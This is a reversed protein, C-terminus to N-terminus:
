LFYLQEHCTCHVCNYNLPSSACSCPRPPPPLNGCCCCGTLTQKLKTCTLILLAISTSSYPCRAAASSFKNPEYAPVAAYRLRSSVITIASLPAAQHVHQIVLVAVVASDTRSSSNTGITQVKGLRRLEDVALSRVASAHWRAFCM